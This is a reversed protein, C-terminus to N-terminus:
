DHTAERAYDFLHWLSRDKNFDDPHVRCVDNLDKAQQGDGMRINGLSICRVEAGAHRLQREWVVAAKRGADDLHPFIRVRKGKFFSLANDPINHSAGLMAVPAVLHDLKEARALSLAALLDPGGEVLAISQHPLVAKVGIPWSAKSHRLTLAKLDGFMNGDLQRAQVNVMTGDMIFWCRAGKYTGFRLLGREVAIQVSEINLNRLQALQRRDEETGVSLDGPLVPPLDVKVARPTAKRRTGLDDPMLNRMELGLRAVVDEVPCGSFCYLLIRGDPCLRASLSPNKDQHAPCRSSVSDSTGRPTHGTAKGLREIITPWAITSM